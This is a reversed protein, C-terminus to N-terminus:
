VILNMPNTEMRRVLLCKLPYGLAKLDDLLRDLDADAGVVQKDYVAVWQDPHRRRIERANNNAFQIDQDFHQMEVNIDDTPIRITKLADGEARFPPAPTEPRESVKASYFRATMKFRERVIKARRAGLYLM